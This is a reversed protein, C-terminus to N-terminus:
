LYNSYIRIPCISRGSLTDCIRWVGTYSSYLYYPKVSTTVTGNADISRESKELTAYDSDSSALTVFYDESANVVSYPALVSSDFSMDEWADVSLSIIIFLSGVVGVAVACSVLIVLPSTMVVDSEDSLRFTLILTTVNILTNLM